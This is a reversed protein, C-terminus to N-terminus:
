KNTNRYDLILAPSALVTADLSKEGLVISNSRWQPLIRNSLKGELLSLYKVTLCFLVGSHLLRFASSCLLM